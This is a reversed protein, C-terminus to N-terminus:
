ASVSERLRAAKLQRAPRPAEPQTQGPDFHGGVLTGGQEVSTRGFLAGGGGGGGGGAALVTREAAVPVVVHGSEVVPRGLGAECSRLWLGVSLTDCSSSESENTVKGGEKIHDM